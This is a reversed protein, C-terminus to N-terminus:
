KSLGLRQRRARLADFTISGNESYAAKIGEDTKDKLSDWNLLMWWEIDDFVVQKRESLRGFARFFEMDNRAAFLAIIQHYPAVSKKRSLVDLVLERCIKRVDVRRGKKDTKRLHKAVLARIIREVTEDANRDGCSKWKIQVRGPGTANVAIEAAIGLVIDEPAIM